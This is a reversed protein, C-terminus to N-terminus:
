IYITAHIKKCKNTWKIVNDTMDMITKEYKKSVRVYCCLIKKVFIWIKQYNINEQNDNM